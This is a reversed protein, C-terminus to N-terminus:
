CASSPPTAGNAAAPSLTVMLSGGAVPALAALIPRLLPTDCVPGRFPLFDMIECGATNLDLPFMAASDALDSARETTEVVSAALLRVQQHPALLNFHHVRNGFGDLYYFVTTPQSVMLHFSHCSQYDDSAPQMRLETMWESVPLTYDLRTEHQVELIM